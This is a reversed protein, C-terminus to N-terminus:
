PKKVKGGGAKAAVKDVPRKPRPPLPEEAVLYDGHVWGKRRGASVLRWKGTRVVETVLEGGELMFLVPAGADAKGRVRVRTSTRLQRTEPKGPAATISGTVIRSPKSPPRAVTKPLSAPAAKRPEANSSKAPPVREPPRPGAMDHRVVWIGAALAGALLWKFSPLMPGKMAQLM